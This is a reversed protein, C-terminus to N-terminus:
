EAEFVEAQLHLCWSVQFPPLQEGTTMASCIFPLRHQMSCALNLSYQLYHVKSSVVIFLCINGGNLSVVTTILM